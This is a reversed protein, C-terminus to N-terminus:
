DDKAPSHQRHEGCWDDSAVMPFANMISAVVPSDEGVMTGFNWPGCPAKARCEGFGDPCQLTSWKSFGPNWYRCTECTENM